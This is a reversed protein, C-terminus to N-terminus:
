GMLGFAGSGVYYVHGNCTQMCRGVTQVVRAIDEEQQYAEFYAREFGQLAAKIFEGDHHQAESPWFIPTVASFMAADIMLKTTSGGKMRSSGTVPEPGVVPNLIFHKGTNANAFHELEEFTTRCTRDWNEIPANRALSVPNFGMLVTTHNDQHMSHAIQGAVYPASLGCTVGIFLVRDCGEVLTALDKEGQHPDDEPLENSIVLSQDGGSILYNFLRPRAPHHAATIQHLLRASHWAIRGSTGCGSFVIANRQLGSVHAQTIDRAVSAVDALTSLIKPDNLSIHEDWGSFVQADAQKLSRVMGLSSLADLTATFANPLETVRPQTTM